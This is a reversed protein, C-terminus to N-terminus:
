RKTLNNKLEKNRHFKIIENLLLHYEQNNWNKKSNICESLMLFIDLLTSKDTQKVFTKNLQEFIETEYKINEMDYVQNEIDIKQYRIKILEEKYKTYSFYGTKMKYCKILIYGEKEEEIKYNVNSINKNEPTMVLSEIQRILYEIVWKKVIKDLNTHLINIAKDTNKTKESIIYIM